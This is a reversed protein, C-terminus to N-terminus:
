LSEGAREGLTEVGLDLRRQRVVLWTGKPAWIIKSFNLQEDLYVKGRTYAVM